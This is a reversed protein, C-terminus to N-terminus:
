QVMKVEGPLTVKSNATLRANKKYQYAMNSRAKDESIAYTSAKWHNTVCCDFIMVPGAYEYKHREEM